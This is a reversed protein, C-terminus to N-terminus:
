NELPNEVITPDGTHKYTKGEVVDREFLNVPASVHASPKGRPKLRRRPVVQSVVGVVCIVEVYEQRHEVPKYPSYGVAPRLIV